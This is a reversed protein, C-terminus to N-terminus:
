YKNSSEMAVYGSLFHESCVCSSKSPAWDKRNISSIWAHIFSTCCPCDEVQIGVKATKSQRAMYLSLPDEVIEKIIKGAKEATEIVGSAHVIRPCVSMTAHTSVNGKKALAATGM